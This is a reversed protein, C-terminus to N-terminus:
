GHSAAWKILSSNLAIPRSRDRVAQLILPPSLICRVKWFDKRITNQNARGTQSTASPATSPKAVPNSISLTTVYNEPLLIELNLLSHFSMLAIKRDAYFPTSVASGSLVGTTSQSLGSSLGLAAPTGANGTSAAQRERADRSAFRRLEDFVMEFNFIQRDRTQLHRVAILLSMEPETLDSLVRLMGDGVEMSASQLIAEVCRPNAPSPFDISLQSIAVTLIRYMMRLDNSLEYIGRMVDKVSAMGFLTSVDSVWAEHFMTEPSRPSTTHPDPSATLASRVIDEFTEFSGPPRVHIIRHSFRSKVRKELLDTTDVRSTLGVVALGAGYSAAQVADLLCYLLAQRPRATFQDFDKLIIVLPKKNSEGSSSSSANSLLAIIHAIVNNLSSLIAGALVEQVAAEEDLEDESEDEDDGGFVQDAASIKTAAGDEQDDDDEDLQSAMQTGVDDESFAGQLILQQAMEKMASRDNIQVTGSLTVQYFADADLSSISEVGRLSRLVSDLLVSKGSGSSGILLCSNSEQATVTAHLMTYLTHWEEQMGICETGKGFGNTLTAAHSQTPLQGSFIDLCRRKQAPLCKELTDLPISHLASTTQAAEHLASRKALSPMSATPPSLREGDYPLEVELDADTPANSSLAKRKLSGEAVTM